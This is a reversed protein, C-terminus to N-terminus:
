VIGRAVAWRMPWSGAFATWNTIGPAPEAEAEVAAQELKWEKGYPPNAAQYDYCRAGLQWNSLTSGFKINDADRGDLPKMYLDAKCIAFTEPQSEHGFMHVEANPNIELIQDKTTTLMGGTGCCLDCVTGVIAHKKIVERDM